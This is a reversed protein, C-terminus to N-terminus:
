MGAKEMAAEAKERYDLITYVQFLTQWLGAAEPNLEVAKEYNLMAKELEGKAQLDIEYAEDNDLTLDRLDFLAAAKNQYLIGLTNFTTYNTDDLEAAKLLSEEASNTLLEIEESLAENAAKIAEVEAENGGENELDYISDIGTSLSDSLDQVRRYIQTGIVLRYQANNPDDEILQGVVELAKDTQGTQFYADAVKQILYASDPYLALGEEIIGVATEYDDQVFYYTALQDYDVADPTGKLEMAREKSEIANAYDGDMQYIQALVDHSLVSDPNIATANELHAIALDLPNEVTAMISDDVAYGIAENHERGWAELKVNVVNDAEAPREGINFRLYAEMLNENMDIYVPKRETVSAMNQAINDLAIAKYYYGLGNAPERAIATDAAILAAEYDQSNIGKKIPSILADETCSILLAFVGVLTLFSYFQKKM